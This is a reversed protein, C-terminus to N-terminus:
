SAASAALVWPPLAADLHYRRRWTDFREALATSRRNLKQRVKEPRKPIFLKDPTKSFFLDALSIIREEDTVCSFDREPLPLQQRQIDERTLGGLGIHTAAVRAHQPLGEAELMKRGEEVHAIYPAMGYCGIGPAHTRVIGIDHLMAAEEIFQLSTASLGCAQAMNRALATVM